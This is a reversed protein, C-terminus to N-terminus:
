GVCRGGDLRGGSRCLCSRRCSRSSGHGRFRGGFLHNRCLRWRGGRRSLRIGWFKFNRRRRCPIRIRRGSRFASNGRYSSDLQNPDPRLIAIALGFSMSLFIARPLMRGYQDDGVVNIEGPADGRAPLHLAVNRSERQQAPLQPRAKRDIHEVHRDDSLQAAIKKGHHQLRQVGGSLRNEADALISAVGRLQDSFAPRPDRNQPRRSFQSSVRIRAALSATCREGGGFGAGAGGFLDQAVKLAVGRKAAVHQLHAVIQVVGQGRHQAIGIQQQQLRAAKGGLGARLNFGNAVHRKACERSTAASKTAPFLFSRPRAAPLVPNPCPRIRGRRPAASAVSQSRFQDEGPQYPAIWTNALPRVPLQQMQQPFAKHVLQHCGARNKLV